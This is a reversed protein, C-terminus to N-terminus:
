TQQHVLLPMKGDVKLYHQHIYSAEQAIGDAGYSKINIDGNPTPNSAMIIASIIEEFICINYWTTTKTSNKTSYYTINNISVNKYIASANLIYIISDISEFDFM